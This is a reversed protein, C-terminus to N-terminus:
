KLASTLFLLFCVNQYMFIHKYNTLCQFMDSFLMKVLIISSVGFGCQKYKCRKLDLFHTIIYLNM